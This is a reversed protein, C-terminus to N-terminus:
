MNICKDILQVYQKNQRFGIISSVKCGDKLIILEPVSNSHEINLKELLNIDLSFYKFRGKYKNKIKTLMAEMLPNILDNKTKTVIIVDKCLIEEKLYNVLKNM